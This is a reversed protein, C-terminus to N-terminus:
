AGPLRVRFTAGNGAESQVSIRGGHAEAIWAAIALGLGTGGTSRARANDARYFREFIRRQDAPQIGPGTDAVALEVQRGEHRSSVTVRGGAPTYKLANDILIVLLQRLRAGDGRTRAHELGTTLSVGRLEALAQMDRVVDAALESLELDQVALNDRGEDARALTLLDGVLATMRDVQMSIAEVQEMRSDITADTNETLIETQLRAIALPTRLEHSADSVFRQQSEFSRRIPTLARGALLFGTIGALAMGAVGGLVFVSALSALQHDRLRLSRGVALYQEGAGTWEGISLRYHAHDGRVDHLSKGADREALGVLDIGELDVRRPNALVTGDRTFVVYFVDSILAVPQTQDDRGNDRGDSDESDDDDEDRGDGDSPSALPAEPESNLSQLEATADRLSDDIERDIDDRVLLYATTGLGLITVSMLAMYWAALKLRAHTFM